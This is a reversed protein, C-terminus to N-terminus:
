LGLILGPFPIQDFDFGLCPRRLVARHSQGIELSICSEGRFMKLSIVASILVAQVRFVM